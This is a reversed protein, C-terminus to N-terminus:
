KMEKQINFLDSPASVIYDAGADMLEDKSGYGWLVGASRLGNAKAGEIDQDRDGIMLVSSKDAEGLQGLLHRIVDAKRSIKGDMTAAGVYDFYKHLDFHDLIQVSFEYPKSTALAVTANRKKLECLMEPIGEYVANEFIGGARFYVRYYDVALLAQQEALLKQVREIYHDLGTEMGSPAQPQPSEVFEGVPKDGVGVSRRSGTPGVTLQPPGCAITRMKLGVLYNDNISIQGVGSEKTKVASPRDFGANGSLVTGVGISRMKTSSVDKVRGEGGAVTRMEVTHTSTQKDVTSLSTNTFSETLTAVETNTFQSV